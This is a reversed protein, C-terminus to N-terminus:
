RNSKILKSIIKKYKKNHIKVQKNKVYEIYDLFSANGCASVYRGQSDLIIAPVNKRAQENYWKNIEILKEM